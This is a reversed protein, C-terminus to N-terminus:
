HKLKWLATALGILAILSSISEKNVGLDPLHILIFYAIVAAALLLITSKHAKLGELFHVSVPCPKEKLLIKAINRTSEQHQLL